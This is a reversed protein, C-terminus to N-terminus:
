GSWPYCILINFLRFPQNQLLIFYRLLPPDMIWIKRRSRSRPITYQLSTLIYTYLPTRICLLFAQDELDLFFYPHFRDQWSTIESHIHWWAGFYQWCINWFDNIYWHDTQDPEGIQGQFAFYLCIAPVQLQRWVWCSWVLKKKSPCNLKQLFNEFEGFLLCMKVTLFSLCLGLKIPHLMVSCPPWRMWWFFYLNGLIFPKFPYKLLNGSYLYFGGFSNFLLSLSFFSANLLIPAIANVFGVGDIDVFAIFILFYTLWLM